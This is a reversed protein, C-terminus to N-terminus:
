PTVPDKLAALVILLAPAVEESLYVSILSPMGGVNKNGAAVDAGANPFIWGADSASRVAARHVELASVGDALVFRQLVRARLEKGLSTGGKAESRRELTIGPAGYRAMPDKKLRVLDPDDGRCASIGMLVILVPIGLSRSFGARRPTQDAFAWRCTM